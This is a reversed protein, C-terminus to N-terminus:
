KKLILTISVNLIIYTLLIVLIVLRKYHQDQQQDPNM